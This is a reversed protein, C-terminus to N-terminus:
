PRRHSLAYGVTAAILAALLLIPGAFDIQYGQPCTCTSEHGPLQAPCSCPLSQEVPFAISVLIGAILLAIAPSYAVVAKL